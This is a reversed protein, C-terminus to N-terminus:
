RSWCHHRRAREAGNRRRAARHARMRVGACAPAVRLIRSRALRADHRAPSACAEEQSLEAAARWKRQGVQEPKMCFAGPPPRVGDNNFGMRNIVAGDRPLRFLRPKPNGVQPRPTVTGIETFGFGMRLLGAYARADKDFGAAVGIPNSFDYGFYQCALVPDDSGCDLPGLGRALAWVTLNHAREPDLRRLFSM